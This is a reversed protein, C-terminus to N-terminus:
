GHVAGVKRGMDVLVRDIFALYAQTIQAPDHYQEIYAAAKMGLRQRLEPQSALRRMAALLGKENLPRIKVVAEDPLESYWGLDFVIVPKAAAMARLATASTEGVTPHRLNIIVDATEIWDVFDQLEEVFGLQTVSEGLGFRGIMEDLDVAEHVGGVILFHSDPMAQQLERFASLALDIRKEATVQGLVAFVMTEASLKLVERKSRGVRKEMLAPILEVPRTATRRTILDVATESHVILGLSRDVLRNNLPVEFLPHTARGARIAWARDVGKLGLAYGMERVYAPYGHGGNVTRHAIFHHLGHDHLVVLGPYRVATEYIAEHHVSNGMQYLALDFAWRSAPYDRIPRIDFASQLEATVQEPQESFLTVQAAQGLHPLLARSYDAIGSRAPPLPSFYALRRSGSPVIRSQVPKDPM